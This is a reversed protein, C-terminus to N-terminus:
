IEWKKWTKKLETWSVNESRGRPWSVQQNGYEIAAKNERKGRM